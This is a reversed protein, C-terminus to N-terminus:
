SSPPTSFTFWQNSGYSAGIVYFYFYHFLSWTSVENDERLRVSWYYNTGPKLETELKYNPKKINEELLVLREPMYAKKSGDFYFAAAEYIILDYTLNKQPSPQWEFSPTLGNAKQFKKVTAEPNIPIVGNFIKGLYKNGCKIGWKPRCIHQISEYPGIQAEKKMIDVIPTEEIHPFRAKFESIAIQSNDEIECSFRNGQIVLLFNVIYICKKDAPVTFNAKIPLQSGGRVRDGFGLITYEGPSLAWFFKGDDKIDYSSAVDSSPPLLVLLPNNYFVKGWKKVGESDMLTLKGFVICQDTRPAEKIDVIIGKKACSFTLIVICILVFPTAIRKYSKM